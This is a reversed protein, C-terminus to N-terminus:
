RSCKINLHNRQWALFGLDFVAIQALNKGDNQQIMKVLNCTKSFFNADASTAFYHPIAGTITNVLLLVLLILKRM